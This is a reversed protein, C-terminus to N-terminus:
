IDDFLNTPPQTSSSVPFLRESRGSASYSIPEVDNLLETRDNQNGRFPMVTSEDQPRMSDAQNRTNIESWRQRNQTTDVQKLRKTRERKVINQGDKILDSTM